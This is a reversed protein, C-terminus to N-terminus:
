FDLIVRILISKDAFREIVDTPISDKEFYALAESESDFVQMGSGNAYVFADVYIIPIPNEEDSILKEPIEKFIYNIMADHANSKNCALNEKYSKEILEKNM